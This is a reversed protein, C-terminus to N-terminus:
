ASNQELCIRLCRLSSRSRENSSLITLPQKGRDSTKRRRKKSFYLIDLFFLRDAVHGRAEAEDEKIRLLEEIERAVLPDIATRVESLYQAVVEPSRVMKDATRLTMYDAYSLMRATEDRLLVIERFLTVNAAMRNQIVYYIRKRTEERRAYSLAPTSFPVKTPLWLKGANDGEGPKLRSITSNPVGELEDKTLWLGAAEETFNKNCERVLDGIRKKKMAFKERQAGSEIGCGNPYFRRHLKQLCYRSERDLPPISEEVRSAISDILLFM